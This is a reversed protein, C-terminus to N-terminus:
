ASSSYRFPAARRLSNRFLPLGLELLLDPWAPEPQSLRVPACQNCAASPVLRGSTPLRPPMRDPLWSRYTRPSPVRLSPVNWRLHRPFFNCCRGVPSQLLDIADIWSQIPAQKVMSSPSPMLRESDKSYASNTCASKPYVSHLPTSYAFNACLPCIGDGGLAKNGTASYRPNNNLEVAAAAAGRRGGRPAVIITSIKRRFTM